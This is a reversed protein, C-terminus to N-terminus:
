KIRKMNQVSFFSDDVDIEFQLDVYEIITKHGEKDQPILEMKKPLMKGGINTIDFAKMINVVEEDEDYFVVHIQVFHEKDLCMKIKGWVVLAEEDPIMTLQYCERGDIITDNNLVHTYDDVTSSQRVLDDNTMDTGMWSQMMMSPPMKTTREISPVWNWVEKGKKLFVIGKEKVPETILIIGDDGKTWSKLQMERTWKPRVTTIKMESFSSNTGRLKDESKKLIEKATLEQSIGSHIFTLSLLISLILKM